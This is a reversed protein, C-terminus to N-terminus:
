TTPHPLVFNFGNKLMKKNDEVLEKRLTSLLCKLDGFRPVVIINFVFVTKKKTFVVVFQVVNKLSTVFFIYKDVKQDSPKIIKSLYTTCKIFLLNDWNTNTCFYSTIGGYGKTNPTNHIYCHCIKTKKM